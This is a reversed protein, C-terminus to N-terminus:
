KKMDSKNADSSSDKKMNDKVMGSDTGTTTSNSMSGSSGTSSSKGAVDSQATPGNQNNEKAAPGTQAQAFAASSLLTTMAAAILIKKV